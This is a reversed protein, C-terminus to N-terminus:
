KIYFNPSVFGSVRRCFLSIIFFVFVSVSEHIFVSLLLCPCFSFFFLSIVTLCSLLYFRGSLSTSLFAFVTFFTLKFFFSIFFLKLVKKRPM